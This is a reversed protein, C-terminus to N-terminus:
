EWNIARLGAVLARGVTEGNRLADEMVDGAKEFDAISRQGSILTQTLAGVGISVREEQNLDRGHYTATRAEHEDYSEALVQLRAERSDQKITQNQM